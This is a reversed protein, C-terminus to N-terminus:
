AATAGGSAEQFSGELHGTGLVSGAYARSTHQAPGGIDDSDEEIAAHRGHPVGRPATGDSWDDDVGERM